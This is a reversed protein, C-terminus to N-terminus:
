KKWVLAPIKKNWGFAIIWAWFRLRGETLDYGYQDSSENEKLRIPKLFFGKKMEESLEVPSPTLNMKNEIAEEVSQYVKRNYDNSVRVKRTDIMEVPTKLNDAITQCDEELLEFDLSKANEFAREPRSTNPIVIVRENKSLWNLIVQGSTRGYKKAIDDLIQRQKTGNVLNGQALPSYAILFIDNEECFPIMSDEVSREFINYETQISTLNNNKLSNITGRIEELLFNSVGINRVKGDQVLKEMAMVTEEIPVNPNPWHIQFLDIVDTKLRQLSDEASKITGLYTTDIPSVKSALFVEERGIKKLVNGLMIESSGNGYVPATDIFNVGNNLSEKITDELSSGDSNEPLHFGTGFGIVSVKDNSKGISRYKM